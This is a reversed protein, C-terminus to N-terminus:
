ASTGATDTTTIADTHEHAIPLTFSFTSGHGVESTVWVQGGQREVLQRTIALGLGSGREPSDNGKIRHFRTFLRQFEEPPIGSGTDSVDVRVFSDLREAGIRVTGASTYRRANDLLHTLIINLQERDARVPPLDAPLEVQLELGKKAFAKRMPSIAHEVVASLNQPEIELYLSNSEISAVMIINKVINNMLEARGRVQELLEAQEASLDGIMGRLLLETYGTIVTLPSRLEHSITAIFFTKAQDVAAEASIDHLVIVEGLEAGGDAIVPARSLRLVREGLQYHELDGVDRGFIDRGAEVHVLPLEDFKHQGPKWDFLGLMQSAASNMLLISRDRDCVVVGDAISQLIARRESAENQVRDFLIANYLVSSAMNAVATLTQENAGGFAEPERHAFILAGAPQEQMVLPTIMVAGFGNAEGLGFTTLRPESAPVLIKSGREAALDHLLPDDLAVLTKQLPVLAEPATSDIRYHFARDNKLLALVETGPVFSQVTRRTVDLVPEVEISSNLERSTRYLQLLHETMQNFALALRGLEDSTQITTRRELDGATVAEATSVLSELPVTINHAIRYGLLVSGLALVLAIAIITNRSLSLSQVQFDRSLGVSFYGVQRDAIALPSYALEYERQRIIVTFISQALGDRLAQLAAQSMNLTELESRPVLTSSTAIGDLDYFSTVAAQSSRELASLLRDGKIAVLAGGVVEEGRRVPVATYFHPQPDPAFYILGSFKDNGDIEVGSIIAQVFDVQSLDTGEIEAPAATPDNSIRQWDVLTQGTRDFAILRDFDINTNSVAFSYYPRLANRLIERDPDIYADAMAPIPGNAPAFALLRLYDLQNRERRVLADSSNRAVQALQNQLREEWSAAVLGVAIAAGAMMVVLTLALYPLIIKYSIHSRIAAILNRM